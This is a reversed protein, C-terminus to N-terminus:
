EGVVWPVCFSHKYSPFTNWKKTPSTYKNLFSNSNLVSLIRSFFQIRAITHSCSLAEGAYADTLYFFCCCCFFLLTRGRNVCYLGISVKPSSSFPANLPRIFEESHFLIDISKFLLFHQCQFSYIHPFSRCDSDYRKQQFIRPFSHSLSLALSNKKDM